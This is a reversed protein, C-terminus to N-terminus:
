GRTRGNLPSSHEEFSDSRIGQDLANHVDVVGLSHTERSLLKTIGVSNRSRAVRERGAASSVAAPASGTSGALGLTRRMSSITAFTFLSIMVRVSISFIRM